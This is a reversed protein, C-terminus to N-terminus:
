VAQHFQNRPISEQAGKFNLFEPEPSPLTLSLPHNTVMCYVQKRLEFVVKESAELARGKRHTLACNILLV